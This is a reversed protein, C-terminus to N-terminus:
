MGILYSADKAYYNSFNQRLWLALDDFIDTCTLRENWPSSGVGKLNDISTSILNKRIEADKLFSSSELSFTFPM